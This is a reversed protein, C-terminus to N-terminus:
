RKNRWFDTMDYKTAEQRLLRYHQLDQKNDNKPRKHTLKKM